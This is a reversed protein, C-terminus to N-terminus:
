FNESHIIAFEFPVDLTEPPIELQIKGIRIQVAKAGVLETVDKYTGHGYASVLVELCNRV